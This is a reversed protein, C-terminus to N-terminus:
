ELFNFYTDRISSCFSKLFDSICVDHYDDLERGDPGISTEREIDSVFRRRKHAKKMFSGGQVNRGEEESEDVAGEEVGLGLEDPRLPRGQQRRWDAISQVTQNNKRHRCLTSNSVHAGNCRPCSCPYKPKVM